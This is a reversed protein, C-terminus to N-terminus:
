NTSNASGYVYQLMANRNPEIQPVLVNLVEERIEQTYTGDLPLRYGNVQSIGNKKLWYFYGLMDEVDMDTNLYHGGKKILQILGAYSMSNLKNYTATIVRRQRETRGWDGGIDKRVRCFSLLQEPDLSNIGGYVNWVPDSGGYDYHQVRGNLEMDNVHVAEASTVEVDIPGILDYLDMFRWFDTEIYNDIHIGFNMEITKSLLDAGGNLYTLNIMGDKGDACPIYMDRMLSVLNIENTITNISFVMMSDSRMEAKDGARRDQGVILINKIDGDKMVSINANNKLFLKLKKARITEETTLPESTEKSITDISADVSETEVLESSEKPIHMGRGCGLIVIFSMSLILCVCIQFLRTINVRNM